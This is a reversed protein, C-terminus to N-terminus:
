GAQAETPEWAERAVVAEVPSVERDLVLVEAVTLVKVRPELVLVQEALHRVVVRDAALVRMLTTLVEAAVVLLFLRTSRLTLGLLGKQTLAQRHQAEAAWRSLIPLFPFLLFVKQM